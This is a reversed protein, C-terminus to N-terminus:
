SLHAKIYKEIMDQDIKRKACIDAYLKGSKRLTRKQTKFDNHYLGFRAKYGETWEFNDTLTWHYYREIPVGAESTKALAKLHDYIFQSRFDDNTDCTGNETIYIPLSYKKFVKTCIRSLGEPYIEWGLDNTKCGERLLREGFLTGINLNGKIIDRSYYNIGVFDSYNGEKINLKNKLPWLFKATTMSELFINQFLREILNVAKRTLWRSDYPDFIRLHHAVGISVTKHEFNKMWGHMLPYTKLHAAVINNAAKFYSRVDGKRGPPWTGEFYGFTLYVNPENFTIWDSVLDGLQDVVFKAFRAFREISKPNTWAGDDEMWLPNSFHWLTVLPKIGKENLLQLEKRYLGIADQNFKGEEPEIRCWEIGLRHTDCNLCDILETDSEIRNLHDCAVKVHDQNEINGLESWRYWNNNQEGGEIQTSATAVGLLLNDPLNFSEM